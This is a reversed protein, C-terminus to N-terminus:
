IYVGLDSLSKQVLENNEFHIINIGLEKAGELYRSSDDIMVAENSKVNFKRLATEYISKDPKLQKVESSIIIEDFLNELNIGFFDEQYKRFIIGSTNSIIATKYGKDKIEKIWDLLQSNPLVGEWSKHIYRWFKEKEWDLENLINDIDKKDDLSTGLQKYIRNELESSSYGLKDLILVGNFDFFIAKINNMYLYYCIQLLFHHIISEPMSSLFGTEKIHIIYDM